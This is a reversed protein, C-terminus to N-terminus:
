CNCSFLKDKKQKDTLHAHKDSFLSSLASNSAVAAAVESRVDDVTKSNNKNSNTHVESKTTSSKKLKKNSKESDKEDGNNNKIQKRKHKKSSSKEDGKMRKEELKLKIEDMIQGPPPALRILDDQDFPGYEEQIADIGMTKIAKESLVNPQNENSDQEEVDKNKNKKKKKQKKKVILFAPQLGNLEISTIPCIPFQHVGKNKKTSSTTMQDEDRLQFRVPKLDKLGRVHWGLDQSHGGGGDVGNYSGSSKGEEIRRLLAKM